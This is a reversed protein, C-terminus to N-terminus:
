QNHEQCFRCHKFHCFAAIRGSVGYWWMGLRTQDPYPCVVKWFFYETKAWCGDRGAWERLTWRQRKGMTFNGNIKVM